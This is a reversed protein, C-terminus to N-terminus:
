VLVDLHRSPNILSLFALCPLKGPERKQLVERKKTAKSPALYTPAQANYQKQCDEASRSGVEMAVNVWFDSTHKPLSTVARFALRVCLFNVYVGTETYVLCTACMKFMSALKFSKKLM